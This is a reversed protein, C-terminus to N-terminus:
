TKHTSPDVLSFLRLSCFFYPSVLGFQPRMVVLEPESKSNATSRADALWNGFAQPPVREECVPNLPQPHIFKNEKKHGLRPAAQARDGTHLCRACPEDVVWM